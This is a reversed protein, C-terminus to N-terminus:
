ILSIIHFRALFHSEKAITPLKKHEDEIVQM